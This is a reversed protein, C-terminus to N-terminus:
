RSVVSVNPVEPFLSQEDQAPSRARADGCGCKQRLLELGAPARCPLAGVSSSLIRANRAASLTSFAQSAVPLMAYHCLRMFPLDSQSDGLGITLAGTPVVNALLWAVAQEKGMWSPMAALFNANAHIRYGEPLQRAVVDRLGRLEERNRRNHKISLFLDLGAEATVRCRADIAEKACVEEVSALMTRLAESSQRAQPEVMALWREDPKGNLLIVGGFNTIAYTTKPLKMALYSESTRATTPVLEAHEVLLDVLARQGATLYATTEGNKKFAVPEAGEEPSEHQTTILSDDLDSFVWIKNRVM